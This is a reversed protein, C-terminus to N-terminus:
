KKIIIAGFKPKYRTKFKNFNENNEKLLNDETLNENRFYQKHLFDSKKLRRLHAKLNKETKFLKGCINCKPSPKELLKVPNKVIVPYKNILKKGQFKSCIHRVLKGYPPYQFFIKSGHTCEWYLVDTGCRPCTSQFSRLRCHKGHSKYFQGM